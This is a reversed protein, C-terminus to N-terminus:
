EAVGSYDGERRWGQRIRYTHLFIWARHARRQTKGDQVQASISIKTDATTHVTMPLPSTSSHCVSLTSQCKPVSAQRTTWLYRGDCVRFVSALGITATGSGPHHCKVHRKWEWEKIKKVDKNERLSDYYLVHMHVSGQFVDQHVFLFINVTNIKGLERMKLYCSGEEGHVSLTNIIKVTMALRRALIESGKECWRARREQSFQLPPTGEWQGSYHCILVCRPVNLCGMLCQGSCVPLKDQWVCLSNSLNWVDKWDLCFGWRRDPHYM